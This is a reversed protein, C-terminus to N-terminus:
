SLSFFLDFALFSIVALIALYVLLQVLFMGRAKRVDGRSRM